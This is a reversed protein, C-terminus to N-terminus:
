RDPRRVPPQTPPQTAATDAPPEMEKEKEPEPARITFTRDSPRAIGNLGPAGTIRVRYTGPALPAVLPVRWEQVPRVREFVPPPEAARTTDNAAAASDIGAAGSDVSAGAGAGTAGRGGPPDGGAPPAAGPEQRTTQSM